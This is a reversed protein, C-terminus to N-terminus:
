IRRKSGIIKAEKPKSEKMVSSQDEVAPDFDYVFTNYNTTSYMKTSLNKTGSSNLNLTDPSSHNSNLMEEFMNLDKDDSAILDQINFTSVATKLNNDEFFDLRKPKVVSEEVSNKEVMSEDANIEEITKLGNAKNKRKKDLVIISEKTKKYIEKKELQTADRVLYTESKVTCFLCNKIQDKESYYNAM